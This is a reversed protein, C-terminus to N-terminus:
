LSHLHFNTKVRARNNCYIRIFDEIIKPTCYIHRCSDLLLTHATINDDTFM